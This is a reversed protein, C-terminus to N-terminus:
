EASEISLLRELPLRASRCAVRTPLGVRLVMHLTENPGLALLSKMDAAMAGISALLPAAVNRSDLRQMQDPIVFYPQVALGQSNLYIWAREMLRGASLPDGGIIAISLPGSRIPQSEIAGLLRYAGIRNLRELRRWDAIYALLHRGGVPLHLTRLDLGDGAAASDATLRLSAGLWAHIEPTRFRAESATHTARALRALESTSGILAVRAGNAGMAAVASAVESSIPTAKYPHRNTHRDFLAHSAIAGWDGSGSHAFEIRVYEDSAELVHVNIAIRMAAAAQSVNEVAAGVAMLTAPHRAAFTPGSTQRPVFTIATASCRFAIPQLNDASPAARAAEVAAVIYKPLL